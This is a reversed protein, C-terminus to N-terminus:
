AARASLNLRVYDLRLPEGRGELVDQVFDSRLEAPLRELHPGLCVTRLYSEPEAPEVPRQELWAEVEDFGAEELATAAREPSSFYWSGTWGALYPDYPPSEGVIEAVQLLREINGEGGCQAGLRGGPRFANRLRAFLRPHDTIWHFVATSFVADVSEALELELLDACVVQVSDPLAKRALAVMSPAADVAIVRGRPLRDVLARTLRGTGCGADLVTEDGRLPLRELVELGMRVQPDSVREYSEADWDRTTARSV